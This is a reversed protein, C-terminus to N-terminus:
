RGEIASLASKGVDPRAAPSRPSGSRRRASWMAKESATSWRRARLRCLERRVTGAGAERTRNYRRSIKWARLRGARHERGLLAVSYGEDLKVAWWELPKPPM